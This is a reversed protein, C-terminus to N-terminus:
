GPLKRKKVYKIYNRKEKIAKSLDENSIAM